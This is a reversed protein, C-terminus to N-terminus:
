EACAGRMRAAALGDEEIARRCSLRAAAQLDASREDRAEARAALMFSRALIELM